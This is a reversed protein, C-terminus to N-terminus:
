AAGGEAKAIAAMVAAYQKSHALNFADLLGAAGRLAELMDPAAAFLNPGLDGFFGSFDVYSEDWHDASAAKNEVGAQRSLSGPRHVVQLDFKIKSM